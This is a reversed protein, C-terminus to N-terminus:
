DLTKPEWFWFKTNKRYFKHHTRGPEVVRKTLDSQYEVRKKQPSFFFFILNKKL